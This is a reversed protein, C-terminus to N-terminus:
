KEVENCSTTRAGACGCARPEITYAEDVYGMRRMARKCEPTGDPELWSLKAFSGWGNSFVQPVGTAPAPCIAGPPLTVTGCEDRWKDPPPVLADLSRACSWQHKGLPIVVGDVREKHFYLALRRFGQKDKLVPGKDFVTGYKWLQRVEVPSLDYYDAILHIHYRHDGHLGEIIPIYPFDPPRGRKARARRAAKLFSRLAKRVGDFRDPLAEDDFSLVYHQGSWGIAALRLELRDIDTRNVATRVYRKAETKERRTEDTDDVTFRPRLARCEKVLPGVRQRCCYWTPM